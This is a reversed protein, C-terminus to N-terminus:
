RWLGTMALFPVQRLTGFLFAEGCQLASESAPWDRPCLGLLGELEPQEERRDLESAPREQRDRAKAM